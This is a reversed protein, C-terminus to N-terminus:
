SIDWKAELQAITGNELLTDIAQQVTQILIVNEPRICIGVGNVQQEPALSVEIMKIAPYKKQFKKAIAPEVLAADAKGYQINLLADDVKETPLKNIMPYTDLVAEQASAPEICVTKGNMDAITTIGNPIQQWFILPYAAVTDGQYRIMAMRKLREQTISIGWIICDIKKQDLAMFLAPMSGLDKIILKKNLQKALAQMVDVDFGEYAGQENISVWPAYGAATGIVLADTPQASSKQLLYYGSMLAILTIIIIKFKM